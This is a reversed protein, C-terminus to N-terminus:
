ALGAGEAIPADAHRRARAMLEPSRVTWTLLPTGNARHRALAPDPLDRIDCAIFTPRCYLIYVERQMRYALRGRDERGTVLGRPRYPLTSAFWRVIRPDFSMVAAIGRYDSLAAVVSRCLPKWVMGRKSKVEILLPVKGDVQRLVDHLRSITGGSHLALHSLQEASRERLPGAEDTLRDLTWDHFVMAEGDASAQVDCEIGLGARIAADFAAPSNETSALGHLGRHAYTWEGLWEQGTVPPLSAGPM